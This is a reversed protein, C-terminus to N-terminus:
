AGPSSPSTVTFPAIRGAKSRAAKTPIETDLGRQSAKARSGSGAARAKSLRSRSISAGDASRRGIAATSTSPGCKPRTARRARTPSRSSGTSSRSAMAPVSLRALSEPLVQGGLHLGVGVLVEADLAVIQDVLQAAPHQPQLFAGHIGLQDRLEQAEGVRQLARSPHHLLGLDGGQGVLGLIHQCRKSRRGSGALLDIEQELKEVPHLDPERLQLGGARCRRRAQRVIRFRLEGRFGALQISQQRTQRLRHHLKLTQPPAAQLGGLGLSGDLPYGGAEGGRAGFLADAATQERRGLLKVGLQGREVLAKGAVHVEELPLETPSEVGGLANSQKWGAAHESREFPARTVGGVLNALRDSQAGLASLDPQFRGHEVPDLTGQDLQHAIRNCVTDLVLLRALAQRFGGQPRDVNLDKAAPALHREEAAVVASPDVEPGHLGHRM